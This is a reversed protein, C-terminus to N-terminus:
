TTDTTPNSPGVACPMTQRRPTAMLLWLNNNINCTGTPEDLQVGVWLGPGLSGIEGVFQVIGKKATTGEKGGVTCRDGQRFTPILEPAQAQLVSETPSAPRPPSSSFGSPRATAGKARQLIELTSAGPMAASSQHAQDKANRWFRQACFM